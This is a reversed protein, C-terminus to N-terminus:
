ISVCPSSHAKPSRRSLCRLSLFSISNLYDCSKREKIKSLAKFPEEFRFNWNSILLGATRIPLKLLQIMSNWRDNTRNFFGSVMREIRLVWRQLLLPFGFIGIKMLHASTWFCSSINVIHIGCEILSGGQADKWIISMSTDKSLKVKLLGHCLVPQDLM